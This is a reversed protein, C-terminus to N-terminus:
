DRKALRGRRIETTGVKRESSKPKPNFEEELIKEIESPELGTRKLRYRELDKNKFNAITYYEYKPEWKGQFTSMDLYSVTVLKFQSPELVLVEPNSVANGLKVKGDRGKFKFQFPNIRISDYVQKGDEYLFSRSNGRRFIKGSEEDFDGLESDPTDQNYVKKAKEKEPIVYMKGPNVYYRLLVGQDYKISYDSSYFAYRVAKRFDGFYYGSGIMGVASPKLGKEMIKTLNEADTGHYLALPVPYLGGGPKNVRFLKSQSKAFETLNPDIKFGLCKGQILEDFSVWIYKDDRYIKHTDIYDPSSNPFYEIRYFDIMENEEGKKMLIGFPTEISMLKITKLIEKRFKEIELEEIYLDDRFDIGKNFQYGCNTFSRPNYPLELVEDDLTEINGVENNKNNKYLLVEKYSIPFEATAPIRRMLMVRSCTLSREEEKTLPESNTIKRFTTM